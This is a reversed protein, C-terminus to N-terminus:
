LLPEPEPILYFSRYLSTANAKGKLIDVGLDIWSRYKAM